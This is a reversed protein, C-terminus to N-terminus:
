AHAQLTVATGVAVCTLMAKEGGTLEGHTFQIGVVAHAGLEQAQAELQAIVASRAEAYKAEATDLRKGTLDKFLATVDRLVNLGVVCQGSVLGLRSEVPLSHACETTLMIGAM